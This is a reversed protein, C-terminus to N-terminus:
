YIKEKVKTLARDSFNHLQKGIAKNQVFNVQSQNDIVPFPQTAFRYRYFWKQPLM